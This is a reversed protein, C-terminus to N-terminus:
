LLPMYWQAPPLYPNRVMPPSFFSDVCLVSGGTQHSTPTRFLLRQTYQAQPAHMCFPPLDAIDSQPHVDAGDDTWLLQLLLRLMVARTALTEKEEVVGESYYARDATCAVVVDDADADADADAAPPLEVVARRWAAVVVVTEKGVGITVACALGSVV